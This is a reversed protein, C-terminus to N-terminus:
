SYKELRYSATSCIMSIFTKRDFSPKACAAALWAALRM